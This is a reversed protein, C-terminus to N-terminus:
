LVEELWSLFLSIWQAYRDNIDNEVRATTNDGLALGHGGSRFMHLECDKGAMLLKEALLISNMASVEKDDANHIIFSDPFDDLDCKEVSFSKEEITRLVDCSSGQALNDFSESHSWEGASVVPYILGLANPRCDYNWEDRIKKWQTGLMAALHGGASFGVIVIRNIDIDWIDAKKRILDVTQALELLANPWAKDALSYRLVFAQCGYGMFRIAVPDAGREEITSYGGGPCVIVATRFRRGMSSVFPTLYARLSANEDNFIKFM